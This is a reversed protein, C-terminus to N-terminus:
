MRFIRKCLPPLMLFVVLCAVAALGAWSFHVVYDVSFSIHIRGTRPVALRSNPLPPSDNGIDSFTLIESGRPKTGSAQADLAALAYLAKVTDYARPTLVDALSSDLLQEIYKIHHHTDGSFHSPSTPQPSQPPSLTNTQLHVSSPNSKAIEAPATPPGTGLLLFFMNLMNLPLHRLHVRVLPSQMINPTNFKRM